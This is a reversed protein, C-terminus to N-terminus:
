YKLTVLGRAKCLLLVLSCEATHRINLQLTWSKVSSGVPNELTEDIKGWHTDQIRKDKYQPHAKNYLVEYQRVCEALKGDEALDM